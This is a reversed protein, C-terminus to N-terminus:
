DSSVKLLMRLQDIIHVKIQKNIEAGISNMEGVDYSVSNYLHNYSDSFFNLYKM